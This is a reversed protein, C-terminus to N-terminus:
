QSDLKSSVFYRDQPLLFYVYIGPICLLQFFFLFDTMMLLDIIIMMLDKTDTMMLDM